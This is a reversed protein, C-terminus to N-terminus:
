PMESEDILREVCQTASFRELTAALGQAAVRKLEPTLKVGLLRTNRELNNYEEQAEERRATYLEEVRLCSEYNVRNIQAIRQTRNSAIQESFRRNQVAAYYGWGIAVMVALAFMIM